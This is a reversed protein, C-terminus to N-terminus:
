NLDGGHHGRSLQVFKGCTEMAVSGHVFWAHILLHKRPEEWIYTENM